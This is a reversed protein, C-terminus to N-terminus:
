FCIRYSCYRGATESPRTIRVVQGRTLGFYRAVPDTPQIRPLQNDKLRYRQLLERKEQFSMIEHRPVLMHHTINVLLSAEDFDELVFQNRMAEIVKKAAPTMKESWIIIGRTINQQDLAGIFQRMTKVGVNADESYFVYLKDTEGGDEPEETEVFFNLAKRDVHGNPAYQAKFDDLSINIESEAVQYGRDQVLEHITKNVRWLRAVQREEEM